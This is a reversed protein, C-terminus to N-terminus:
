LKVQVARQGSPMDQVEVGLVTLKDRLKDAAAWDQRDRAKAREELIIQAEDSIDLAKHILGELCLGLVEDMKFITALKDNDKCDTDIVKQLVALGKSTNLDDNIAEYFETEFEKCGM